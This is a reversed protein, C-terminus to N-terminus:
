SEAQLYPELRQALLRRARFLRSKIAELSCDLVGAMEQYSLGHLDRMVVVARLDEPLSRIGAHVHEHLERQEYAQEPSQGRSAREPGVTQALDDSHHAALAEPSGRRGQRRFHNRCTNIAIRYLWTYAHSEGRFREFGRYAALFVESTLDAADEYDGVVRYILNFIRVQYRDFLEEFTEAGPDVEPHRQQVRGM